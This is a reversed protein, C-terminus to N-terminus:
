FGHEGRLCHAGAEWATASEEAGWPEVWVDSWLAGLDYRPDRGWSTGLGRSEFFTARLIVLQGPAIRCFDLLDRGHCWAVRRGSDESEVIVDRPPDDLATVVDAGVIEGALFLRAGLLYWTDAEPILILPEVM